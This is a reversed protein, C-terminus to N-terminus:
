LQVSSSSLNERDLPPFFCSNFTVDNSTKKQKKKKSFICSFFVRMVDAEIGYDPQVFFQIYAMDTSPHFPSTAQSCAFYSNLDDLQENGYLPPTQLIALVVIARNVCDVNM